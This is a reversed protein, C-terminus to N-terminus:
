PEKNVMRVDRRAHYWLLWVNCADITVYWNDVARTFNDFNDRLLFITCDYRADSFPNNACFFVDAIKWPKWPVMFPPVYPQLNQWGPPTKLGFILLCLLFRHISKQKTKCHAKVEWKWNEMWKQTKSFSYLIHAHVVTCLIAINRFLTHQSKVLPIPFQFFLMTKKLFSKLESHQFTSIRITSSEVASHHASTFLSDFKSIKYWFKLFILDHSFQDWSLNKQNNINWLYNKSHSFMSQWFNRDNLSQLDYFCFVM